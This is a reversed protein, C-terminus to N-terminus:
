VGLMACIPLSMLSPVLTELHTAASILLVKCMLDGGPAIGYIYQIWKTGFRPHNKLATRVLSLDQMTYLEKSRRLFSEMKWEYDSLKLAYSTVIERWLPSDNDLCSETLKLKRSM